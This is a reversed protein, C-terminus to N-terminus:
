CSDRANSVGDQQCISQTKDTQRLRAPLPTGFFSNLPSRRVRANEVGKLMEAQSEFEAALETLADRTTVDLSQRALRHCERARHHFEKANM